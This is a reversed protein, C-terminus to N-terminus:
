GKVMKKKCSYYSLFHFRWICAFSRDPVMGPESLFYLFILKVFFVVFQNKFNSDINAATM